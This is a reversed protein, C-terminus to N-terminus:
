RASRDIAGLLDLALQLRPGRRGSAVAEACLYGHVSGLELRRGTEVSRLMSTKIAPPFERGRALVLETAEDLGAACLTAVPLMGPWDELAVGAAQAVAGGERVLEACARATAPDTMAAHLPLRPLATITMTAAAHVLKSWEASRVRDTVM